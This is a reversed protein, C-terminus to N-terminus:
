PIGGYFGFRKVGLDPRKGVLNLSSTRLSKVGIVVSKTQGLLKLFCNCEQYM